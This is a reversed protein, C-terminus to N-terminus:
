IIEIFDTPISLYFNPTIAIERNSDSVGILNYEVICAVQKLLNCLRWANIYM